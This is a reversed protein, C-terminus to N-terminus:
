SRAVQFGPIVYRGTGISAASGHPAISAKGCECTSSELCRFALEGYNCYLTRPSLLREQYVWGRQLLPQREKISKEDRLFGKTDCMRAGVVFPESHNWSIRLCIDPKTRTFCGGTSDASAAAAITIYSNKYVAAMKGSEVEWDQRDGQLICISDIWLYQLQLKRTIEVADRFNQPMSNFGIFETAQHLTARTTCCQILAKGWCHSLCAYKGAEGFSTKVLRVGKEDGKKIETVDIIRSPLESTINPRCILHTDVCNKLWMSARNISTSSATNGRLFSVRPMNRFQTTCGLPSFLHIQQVELTDNKLTQRELVFAPSVNLTTNAELRYDDPDILSVRELLEKLVECSGCGSRISSLLEALTFNRNLERYTRDTEKKKQRRVSNQIGPQPLVTTVYEQYQRKLDCTLLCGSTGFADYFNQLTTEANDFSPDERPFEAISIEM